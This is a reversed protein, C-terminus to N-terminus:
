GVCVKLNPVNCTLGWGLSAAKLNCDLGKAAAVAAAAGQKFFVRKKEGEVVDEILGIELKVLKHKIYSWHM